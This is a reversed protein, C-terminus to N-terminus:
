KNVPIIVVCCHHSVNPMPNGTVHCSLVVDSGEILKCSALPRDFRPEVASFSALKDDAMDVASGNTLPSVVAPHQYALPQVVAPSIITPISV